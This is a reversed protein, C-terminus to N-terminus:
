YPQLAVLTVGVKETRLEPVHDTTLKRADGGRCLIARSDGVHGILLQMSDRLLCVTATTGPSV